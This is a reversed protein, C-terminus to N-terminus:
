TLASAAACQNQARRVDIAVDSDTADGFCRERAAIRQFPM